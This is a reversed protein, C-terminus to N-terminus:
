NSSIVNLCGKIEFDKKLIQTLLSVTFPRKLYESAQLYAVTKSTEADVKNSFLYIPTNYLIKLQKIRLLSNCSYANAMNINIFIFDPIIRDLVKVIMEANRVLICDFGRAIEKQAMTSSFIELKENGSDILVIHKKM